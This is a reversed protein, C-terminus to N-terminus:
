HLVSGDPGEYKLLSLGASGKNELSWNFSKLAEGKASHIISQGKLFVARTKSPRAAGVRLDGMM